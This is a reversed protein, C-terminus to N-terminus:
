RDRRGSSRACPWYSNTNCGFKINFCFDDKKDNVFESAIGNLSAAEACYKM